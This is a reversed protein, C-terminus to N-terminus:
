SFIHIRRRTLLHAHWTPPVNGLCAGLWSPSGPSQAPRAGRKGTVPDRADTMRGRPVQGNGGINVSEMFPYALVGDPSLVGLPPCSVLGCVM